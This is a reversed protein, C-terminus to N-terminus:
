ALEGLRRLEARTRSLEDDYQHERVMTLYLGTGCFAVGTLLSGVGFWSGFFFGLTSVILAGFFIRHFTTRQRGLADINERLKAEWAAYRQVLDARPDSEIAIDTSM